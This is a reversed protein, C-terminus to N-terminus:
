NFLAGYGARKARKKLWEEASHIDHYVKPAPGGEAIIRGAVVRVRPPLGPALSADSTIVFGRYGLGLEPAGTEAQPLHQLLKALEAADPGTINFSPNPRGSYVDIEVQLTASREARRACAALLLSAQGLLLSLLLSRRTGLLSM